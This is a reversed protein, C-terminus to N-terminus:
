TQQQQRMFHKQALRRNHNNVAIIELMLYVDEVSYITDLEGLTAMKNSIVM